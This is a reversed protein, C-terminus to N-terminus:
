AFFRGLLLSIQGECGKIVFICPLEIVVVELVCSSVKALIERFFFKISYEIVSIGVFVTKDGTLIEVIENRAVFFSSIIWIMACIM